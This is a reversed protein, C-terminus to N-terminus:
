LGVTVEDIEYTQPLPERSAALLDDLHVGITHAAREGLAWQRAKDAQELHLRLRSALVFAIEGNRDLRGVLPASWLVNAVDENHRVTRVEDGFLPSVHTNIWDAFDFM